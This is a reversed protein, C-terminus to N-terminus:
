PSHNLENIISPYGGKIIKARKFKQVKASKRKAVEGGM